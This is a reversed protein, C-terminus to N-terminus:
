YTIGKDDTVTIPVTWVTFMQGVSPRCTFVMNGTACFSFTKRRPEGFVSIEVFHQGSSLQITKESGNRLEYNVSDDIKIHFLNMAMRLSNPRIFTIQYESTPNGGELKNGCSSCFNNADKNQAGCKVCIKM